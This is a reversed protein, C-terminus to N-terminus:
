KFINKLAENMNKSLITTKNVSCAYNSIMMQLEMPLRKTIDYFRTVNNRERCELFDDSILVILSFIDAPQTIKYDHLYHNYNQRSYNKELNDLKAYVDDVSASTYYHLNTYRICRNIYNDSWEFYKSFIFFIEVELNNNVPYCIFPPDIGIFDTKYHSLLWLFLNFPIIEHFRRGIYYSYLEDFNFYSFLIESEHFTIKRRLIFSYPDSLNRIIIKKIERMMDENVNETINPLYYIYKINRIIFFDVFKLIYTQKAHMVEDIIFHILDPQLDCQSGAIFLFNNEFNISLSICEKLLDLDNKIVHITQFILEENYRGLFTSTYVVRFVIFKKLLWYMDANMSESPSEYNYLRHFDYIIKRANRYCDDNESRLMEEVTRKWYPNYFINTM